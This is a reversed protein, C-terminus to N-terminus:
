AFYQLSKKTRLQSFWKMRFINFSNYRPVTVWVCKNQYTIVPTLNQWITLYRMIIAYYM